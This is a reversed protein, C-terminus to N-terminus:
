MICDANSSAVSLQPTLTSRTSTYTECQRKVFLRSICWKSRQGQDQGIPGYVAFVSTKRELQLSGHSGFGFSCSFCSGFHDGGFSFLSGRSSQLLRSFHDSTLIMSMHEEGDERGDRASWRNEKVPEGAARCSRYRWVSLEIAASFFEVM